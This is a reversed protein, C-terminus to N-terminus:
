YAKNDVVEGPQHLSVYCRKNQLQNRKGEIKGTTTSTIRARVLKVKNNVLIPVFGEDTSLYLINGVLKVQQTDEIRLKQGKNSRTIGAKSIKVKRWVEM